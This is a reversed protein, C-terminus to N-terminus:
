FPSPVYQVDTANASAILVVGGIGVVVGLVNGAFATSFSAEGGMDMNAFVSTDVGAVLALQISM